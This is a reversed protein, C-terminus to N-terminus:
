SILFTHVFGGIYWTSRYMVLLIVQSSVFSFNKHRLILYVEELLSM